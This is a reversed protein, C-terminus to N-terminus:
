AIRAILHTRYILTEVFKLCFLSGAITELLLNVNNTSHKKDTEVIEQYIKSIGLLIEYTTKYNGNEDLIDFGKFGNSAVKTASMITDRLKSVTTVVNETDEGLQELEKKAASTGTLRLAITRLGGGVSSPNQVVQNGATVLAIAEDIENGATKLASASDQLATAIGDSSISFENGILNLKDVIEIKELNSYAASMAILSETADDISEFESVNMLINATKASESAKDLTEGIRMFDATSDQIQKATTGVSGAIDFSVKQFNKLSQTTEDSVKKMETLATDFERIINIGNRIVAVIEYFGVYTSLYQALSNLRKKWGGFFTDIAGKAKESAKDIRQIAGTAQNYKLVIEKIIGGQEEFKLNLSHTQENFKGIEVNNLAHAYEYMANKATNVNNSEVVKVTNNLNTIIENIKKSYNKDIDKVDIVGSQLSKDLEKIDNKANEFLTDFGQIDKTKLSKLLQQTHELANNIKIAEEYAVGVDSVRNVSQYADYTISSEKKQENYKAELEQIKKKGIQEYFRQEEESLVISEQITQNYKERLETLREFEARQNPSINSGSDIKARLKQYKDETKILEQYSEIIKQVQNTSSSEATSSFYDENTAKRWSSKTALSAFDFDGSQMQAIATNVDDLVIITERAKNGVLELFKLTAKGSSNDVTANKFRANDIETGTFTSNLLEEYDRTQGTYATQKKEKEIREHQEKLASVIKNTDSKIKKISEDVNSADVHAFTIGDYEGLQPRKLQELLINAEDKLSQETSSYEKLAQKLNDKFVSLSDNWKTRANDESDKRIGSLITDSPTNKLNVDKFTQFANNKQEDSIEGSKFMSTIARAAEIAKQKLKEIEKKQLNIKETLENSQGHKIEQGLLNNLKAYATAYDNITNVQKKYEATDNSLDKSKIGRFIHQDLFDQNLTGDQNLAVQGTNPIGDELKEYLNAIKYQTTVVEQGLKEITSTFTIVGNTDVKLSDLNFSFNTKNTAEIFDTRIKNIEQATKQYVKTESEAVRNLNEGLTVSSKSGVVRYSKLEKGDKDQRMSYTIKQIEGLTDKYNSAAREIKEWEKTGQTIETSEINETADKKKEESINEKAKNIQEKTARIITAIDKLADAQETLEKLDNLFQGGGLSLNNLNTKLNLIANALKQMNTATNKKVSLKELIATLNNVTEASLGNLSEKLDNIVKGIESDTDQLNDPIKIDLIISIKQLKELTRLILNLQGDLTELETLERQVTGIVVQEEQKFANTKTDVATTVDDIKQKLIDISTAESNVEQTTNGTDLLQNINSEKSAIAIIQELKNMVQDLQGIIGSFETKGFLGELPSELKNKNAVRNFADRALQVEHKYDDGLLDKYVNSRVTRGNKKQVTAFQKEARDIMSKYIGVLESASADEPEFFRLMEKNTKGTSKMASFLKRYAELQRSTKESIQQNLKENVESGLDMSINFKINSMSETLEMVSTQISNMMKLLPSFEEGDGIDVFISKMDSLSTNIEKISSLLLQFGNEDDITGFSERIKIIENNLNQLLLILVKISETDTGDIKPAYNRVANQLREQIFEIQSVYNQYDHLYERFAKQSYEADSIRDDERDSIMWNRWSTAGDLAEQKKENLKDLAKSYKEIDSLEDDIHLEYLIDEENGTYHNKKRNLRKEIEAQTLAIANQKRKEAQETIRASEETAIAEEKLQETIQETLSFLPVIESTDIDFKWGKSMIPSIDEAREQIEKLLNFTEAFRKPALNYNEGFAPMSKMTKILNAVQENLNNIYDTSGTLAELANAWRLAEKASSSKSLNNPEIKKNNVDSVYQNWAKNIENIAKKESVYYKTMSSVMNNNKSIEKLKNQYEKLEANLTAIEETTKSVSASAKIKLTIDEIDKSRGKSEAIKLFMEMLEDHESSRGSGKMSEAM